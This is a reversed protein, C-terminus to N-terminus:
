TDPTLVRCLSDPKVDAARSEKWTNDMSLAVSMDM